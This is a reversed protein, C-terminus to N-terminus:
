EVSLIDSSLLAKGSKLALVPGDAGLMVKNVTERLFTTVPLTHGQNNQAIVRFAYTGAEVPNEDFDEGHWM